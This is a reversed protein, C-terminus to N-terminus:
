SEHGYTAVPYAEPRHERRRASIEEEVTSWRDVCDRGCVLHPRERPRLYQTSRILGTM